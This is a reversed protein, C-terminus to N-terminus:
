QMILWDYFDTLENDQKYFPDLDGGIISKALEPYMEDLVNFLVQGQRWTPYQRGVKSVEQMYQGHNVSM